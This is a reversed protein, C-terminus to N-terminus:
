YWNSTIVKKMAEYADGGALVEKGSISTDGGKFDTVQGGAEKVLLIGAAVDWPNLNYEFYGDFRGAATYALDVAASGMRRVGRTSQMFKKLIAIYNDIGEFEYYPFGTAILTNELNKEGAVHIKQDNVWAGEGAIASFMENRGVEHVVSLSLVDDITLAISISFVPLGHIFNTTGDLPDIIWCASTKEGAWSGEEAIFSSDPLLQQLGSIIEKESEKDVYSVLDSFAKKREIVRRDFGKFESIQFDAIKKSLSKVGELLVKKDISM